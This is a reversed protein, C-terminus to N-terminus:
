GGQGPWGDLLNKMEVIKDRAFGLLGKYSNIENLVEVRSGVVLSHVALDVTALSVKVESSHNRLAKLIEEKTMAM